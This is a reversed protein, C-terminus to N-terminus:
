RRGKLSDSRAFFNKLDMALNQSFVYAGHKSLHDEDFFYSTSDYQPLGVYSMVPVDAKRAISYQVSDIYDHDLTTSAFTKYVPPRIFILPISDHRCISIFENLMAIARPTLASHTPPNILPNNPRFKLDLPMFGKSWIITSDLSSNIKAHRLKKSLLSLKADDSIRTLFQFTYYARLPAYKYQYHNCAVYNYFVTDALYRYYAPFNYPVAVDTLTAWDVQLLIYAPKPHSKLYEKLIMTHHPITTGKLALVYAKHGTVSDIIAPNVGMLTNSSGIVLIDNYDKGFRAYDIPLNVIPDDMYYKYLERYFWFSGATGLTLSILLLAALRKM